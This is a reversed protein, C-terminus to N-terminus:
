HTCHPFDIQVPLDILSFHDHELSANKLTNTNLVVKCICVRVNSHTLVGGRNVESFLPNEQECPTQTYKTEDGSRMWHM